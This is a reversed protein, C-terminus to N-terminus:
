KVVWNQKGDVECGKCRWMQIPRGRYDVVHAGNRETYKNQTIGYRPDMRMAWSMLGHGPTTCRARFRGGPMKQWKYTGPENNEENPPTGLLARFDDEAGEPIVNKTTMMKIRM